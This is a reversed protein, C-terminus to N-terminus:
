PPNQWNSQNATPPAGSGTGPASSSSAQAFGQLLTELLQAQTGNPAVPPPQQPQAPPAAPNMQQMLAMMMATVGPNPAPTAGGVASLPNLNSTTNSNSSQSVASMVPGLMQMMAGLVANPPQQQSAVVMPSTGNSPTTSPQIRQQQQMLFGLASALDPQPASGTIAFPPNGVNAAQPQFQQGFASFIGLPLGQQPQNAATQQGASQASQVQGGLLGALLALQSPQLPPQGSNGQEQQQQPIQPSLQNQPQGMQLEGPAHFGQGGSQMMSALFAPLSGNTAPANRTAQVTAPVHPAQFPAQAQGQAQPSLGMMAVVMANLGGPVALNSGNNVSGPADQSVSPLQPQQQNLLTSPQMNMTPAGQMSPPPGPGGPGTGPGERLTQMLTFQVQRLQPNQLAGQNRQQKLMAITTRLSENELGLSKNVTVLRMQSDKLHQLEGRQRIRKRQATIRNLRRKRNKKDQEFLSLKEVPKEKKDAKAADPPAAKAAAPADVAAEGPPQKPAAAPDLKKAPSQQDEKPAAAASKPTEQKQPDDDAQQQEAAKVVLSLQGGAVGKAQSSVQVEANAKENAPGEAPKDDVNGDM